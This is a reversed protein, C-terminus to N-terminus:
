TTAEKLRGAAEELTAADSAKLGVAEKDIRRLLGTLVEGGGCEVFTTIRDRIMNQVSRQWLVPSRLQKGLLERFDEPMRVPETTVNSYVPAVTSECFPAAALAEVMGATPEEMLPSHFAGSVNLPLVRKAGRESAIASARQVADVDGSIVLQGPCNENAIVAVSSDSAEECIAQLIPTDLGMVAAMTGPRKQGSAAMLQGRKQVLRAGEEVSLAGSAVVAAYEGVSHGAFAHPITGGLVDLLSEWAALGCTYLALQANQTQRLTDEDSDFCLAAMEVGTAASVLEFIRHAPAFREYLDKGMGPRQSGQGPFVVAFM